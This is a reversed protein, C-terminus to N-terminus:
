ISVNNQRLPRAAFAPMVLAWFLSAAAAFAYEDLGFRGQLAHRLVISANVVPTALLARTPAPDMMNVLTPLLTCILVPFQSYSSAERYSRAALGIVLCMASM